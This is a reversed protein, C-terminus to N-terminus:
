LAIAGAVGVADGSRLACLAETGGADPAPLRDPKEEQELVLLLAELRRRLPGPDLADRPKM